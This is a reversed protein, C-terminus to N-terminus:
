AAVGRRSLYHAHQAARCEDCRCRDNTYASLTGHKVERAERGQRDRVRAAPNVKRGGPKVKRRDNGWPRSPEEGEHWLELFRRRAKAVQATFTKYSMGLADAAAQYDGAAALTELARQQYGTLQPWIKALAEREVIPREPSPSPGSIELWYIGFGRTNNHVGHHRLYNRTETRLAEFAAGILDYATPPEDSSYLHAVIAGWATAFRDDYNEASAGGSRDRHIAAHTIRDVSALTYGHRLEHTRIKM